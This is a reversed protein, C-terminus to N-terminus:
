FWSIASFCISISILVALNIRVLDLDLGDESPGYIPFYIPVLMKEGFSGKQSYDCYRFAKLKTM